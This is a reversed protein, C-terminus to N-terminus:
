SELWDVDSESMDPVFKVYKITTSPNAHRARLYVEGFSAGDKLRNVIASHRGFAHAGAPSHSRRFHQAYASPTWKRGYANKFLHGGGQSQALPKLVRWTEDSISIAKSESGKVANVYVSQQNFDIDEYKVEVVEACRLIADYMLSISAECTDNDCALSAQQEIRGAERQDLLEPEFDAPEGLCIDQVDAYASVDIGYTHRHWLKVASLAGIRSRYAYSDPASPGRSNHWGYDTRNEDELLSDFDRLAKEDHESTAVTEYRRAWRVYKDVTSDSGAERGKILDSFEGFGMPGNEAESM